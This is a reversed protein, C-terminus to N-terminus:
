IYLSCDYLANREVRLFHTIKSIKQFKKGNIKQLNM